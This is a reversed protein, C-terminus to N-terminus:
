VNHCSVNSRAFAHCTQSSPRSGFIGDAPHSEFVRSQLRVKALRLLRLAGLVNVFFLYIYIEGTHYIERTM